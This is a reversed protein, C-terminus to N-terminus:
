SQAAYRTLPGLYMTAVHLGWFYMKNTDYILGNDDLRNEDICRLQYVRGGFSALVRYPDFCFSKEYLRLDAGSPMDDATVHIRRPEVLECFMKREM